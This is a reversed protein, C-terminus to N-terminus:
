TDCYAEVNNYSINKCAFKSVSVVM